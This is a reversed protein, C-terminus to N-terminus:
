KRKLRKNKSVRFSDYCSYRRRGFYESYEKETKEYAEIYTKSDKCNKFFKREFGEPSILAIIEIDIM